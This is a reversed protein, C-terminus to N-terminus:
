MSEPASIGLINLANLLVIRTCDILMLRSKSLEEDETIIRHVTYYKHFISALDYLYTTLLHPKWTIASRRIVDKFSSLKKILKVEEESNLLPLNVKDIGNFKIGALEAKKIISCIRAYAYQIYYVPNEMSQSKAIDLDFETHSDYSRMLFFYRAVDKGVENILDKLTIFEGGRTSMGVEKGEKILTVFQVLLVDFFDPPYGLAQMAAKMRDIYGHHDAGWVDIVKEFGRQYKDQHYAIDSAYYTPIGNERIVVRDKEDDFVTTKVWVAGNKKYIYGKQDLIDLVEQLRDKEYLSKESFWVDFNVGFTELDKKIEASITKLTYEKFFEITEQNDIGKFREGYQSIIEKAIDIIYEGKYGDSPFEITEGLLVNYRAQVSRGLTDIQKGQDNIYYEKEVYFGAAKLISSLADGVAACKGHGVHLPGTPNVSVFEVQIRKGKGEDIKGYDKGKARIEKVIQYLWNSKFWINIFGPKAIEMKEIVDNKADISGVIFHAIDMPSLKVIRSLQLAINTAIDGHSKNKTALLIIEPIEEIQFNNQESNRKISDILIEKVQNSLDIKM